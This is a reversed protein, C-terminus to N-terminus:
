AGLGWVKEGAAELLRTKSYRRKEAASLGAALLDVLAIIEDRTQNNVIEQVLNEWDTAAEVAAHVPPNGNHPAKIANKAEQLKQAENNNGGPQPPLQAPQAM